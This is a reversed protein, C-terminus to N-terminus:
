RKTYKRDTTLYVLVFFRHRHKHYFLQSKTPFNWHINKKVISNWSSMCLFRYFIVLYTCLVSNAIYTFIPSFFWHRHFCLLEINQSCLTKFNNKFLKYLRNINTFFFSFFFFSLFFLYILLFLVINKIVNNTYSASPAM